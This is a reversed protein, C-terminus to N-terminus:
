VLLRGNPLNNAHVQLGEKGRVGFGSDGGDGLL